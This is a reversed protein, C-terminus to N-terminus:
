SRDRRFKELQAQRTLLQRLSRRLEADALPAVTQEIRSNEDADLTERRWQRLPAAKQAADQPPVHGRRLFIDRLPSGELRANLRALLRPKLLQLQQMWVPHDVRVELVGERVRVPRARAAIQAGVTEDWILWARYEHLKGSLGKQRLLEEVLAGAQVARPM